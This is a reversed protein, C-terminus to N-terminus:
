AMSNTRMRVLNRAEDFLDGRGHITSWADLVKNTTDVAVVHRAMKREKPTMNAKPIQLVDRDLEELPAGTPHEERFRKLWWEASARGLPVLSGQFVM